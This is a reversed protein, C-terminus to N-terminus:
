CNMKQFLDGAFYSPYFRRHALMEHQDSFTIQVIRADDFRFLRTAITQISLPAIIKMVCQKGHDGTLALPVIRVKPRKGVQGLRQAADENVIAVIRFISSSVVTALDYAEGSKTEDPKHLVMVLDAITGLTLADAM